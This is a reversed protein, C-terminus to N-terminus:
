EHRLATLPDVKTAHRSPIYAAAAATVMLLLAVGVTTAPDRPSVGYLQSQLSRTLWLAAGVGAALGLVAPVLAERVVLGTVASRGAGLAMRVGIEHTRRAVSFSLVGYLGVAALSLAVCAFATMLSVFFRPESLVADYEAEATTPTVVAAPEAAHVLGRISQFFTSPNRDTRIGVMRMPVNTQQTLPMYAQFRGVTDDRFLAGKVHGVIGIVTM